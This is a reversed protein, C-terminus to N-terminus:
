FEIHVPVHLVQHQYGLKRNSCWQQLHNARATIEHPIGQNDDICIHVTTNPSKTVCWQLESKENAVAYLHLEIVEDRPDM